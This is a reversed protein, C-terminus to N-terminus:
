SLRSALMSSTTALSASTSRLRDLVLPGQTEVSAAQGDVIHKSAPSFVCDLPPQVGRRVALHLDPTSRTFYDSTLM